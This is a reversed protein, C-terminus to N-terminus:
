HRVAVGAPETRWQHSIEELSKVTTEPAYGVILMFVAVGLAGYLFWLSPGMMLQLVPFSLVNVPIEM